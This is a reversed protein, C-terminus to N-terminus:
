YIPFSLAPVSLTMIQARYLLIVRDPCSQGSWPHVSKNYTAFDRLRMGNTNTVPEGSRRVINHNEANAIRGNLEESLLINKHQQGHIKTINSKM